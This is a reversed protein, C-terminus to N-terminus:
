LLASHNGYNATVTNNLILTVFINSSNDHVYYVIDNHTYRSVMRSAYTVKCILLRYATHNETLRRSEPFTFMPGNQWTTVMWQKCQGGQGHSQVLRLRGQFFTSASAIYQNKFASNNHQHRSQIPASRDLKRRAADDHLFLLMSQVNNIVRPTAICRFPSSTTV